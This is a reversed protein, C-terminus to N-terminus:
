STHLDGDDQVFAVQFAHLNTFNERTFLSLYKQHEPSIVISYYVDKIDTQLCMNASDALAILSTLKVKLM